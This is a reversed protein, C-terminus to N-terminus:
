LHEATSYLIHYWEGAMKNIGLGGTVLVRCGQFTRAFDAM